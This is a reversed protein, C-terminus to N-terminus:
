RIMGKWSSDMRSDFTDACSAPCAFSNFLWAQLALLGLRELRVLFKSIRDPIGESLPLERDLLEISAGKPTVTPLGVEPGFVPRDDIRPM